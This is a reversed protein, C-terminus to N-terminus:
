FSPWPKLNYGYEIMETDRKEDFYGDPNSYDPPAKGGFVQAMGAAFKAWELDFGFIKAAYGFNINGFADWRYEKGEFIAYEGIESYHFGKGAVKIDFPKGYGVAAAFQENKIEGIELDTLGSNELVERLTRFFAYTHLLQVYFKKTVDILPKGQQTGLKSAGVIMSSTKNGMQAVIQAGQALKAADAAAQKQAAEMARGQVGNKYFKCGDCAELKGGGWELDHQGFQEAITEMGDPDIYRIPNNLTYNYPTWRRTKEALPDVVGWRGIDSMYMRAGYDLWGLALEDQKEKGNYQYLNMMGNERQYSNFTLGFPYYDDMQVVPSKVQEVKLDDFFVEVATTEENSLYIYVYGSQTIPVSASLKEHAVDQGYEKAATSM